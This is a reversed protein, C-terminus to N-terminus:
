SFLKDLDETGEAFMRYFEDDIYTFYKYNGKGKIRITIEYESFVNRIIEENDKWYNDLWKKFGKGGISTPTFEENPNNRLHDIIKEAWKKCKVKFNNVLEINVTTFNEDTLNFIERLLYNVQEKNHYFHIMVKEHANIKRISSRHIIQSLLAKQEEEFLQQINQDTFWKNKHLQQEEKDLEKVLRLDTDTGYIAIAQLRYEDPHMIPVNLLAIHNYQSLDNKGTVNHLNIALTDGEFRREKFFKEYQEPTIVGAKIYFNIDSKSPIALINMGINAKNLLDDSIQERIDSDSNRKRSTTNIKCWEFFLRDKYRHYNHVLKIKFGAYMYTSKTLNATGDLILINGFPRYDIFSSCLINAKKSTHNISGVDDIFLMDMFRRYRNMSKNDAESKNLLDIISLLEKEEETGQITRILRKTTRGIGHLEKNILKSIYLRGKNKASASLQSENTNNAFTDFWDLSNNDKGIDFIERNFFDPMEDIIITRQITSYEVKSPKKGWYMKEQKYRLFLSPEGFGIALDRLRQQMICVVQYQNIVSKFQELNHENIAIIAKKKGHNNAFRNVEEYFTNMNDNNNFVLLYPKKRKDNQGIETKIHYELATTKGHGPLGCIVEHIYSGQKSKNIYTHIDYSQNSFQRIMTLIEEFATIHLSKLVHEGLLGYKNVNLVKSM